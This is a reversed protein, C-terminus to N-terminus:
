SAKFYAINGYLAVIAGAAFLISNVTLGVAFRVKKNATFDEDLQVKAECQKCGFRCIVFTFFMVFFLIAGWVGISISYM